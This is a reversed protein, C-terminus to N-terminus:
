QFDEVYEDLSKIKEIAEQIEKFDMQIGYAECQEDWPKAAFHMFNALYMQVCSAYASPLNQEEFYELVWVVEEKVEPLLQTEFAELKKEQTM